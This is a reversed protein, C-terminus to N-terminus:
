TDFWLMAVPMRFDSGLFFALAFSKIVIRKTTTSFTIARLHTDLCTALASVEIDSTAQFSGAKNAQCFFPADCICRGWNFHLVTISEYSRMGPHEPIAKPSTTYWDQIEQKGFITAVIKSSLIELITIVL